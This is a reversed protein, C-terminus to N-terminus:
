RTTGIREGPNGGAMGFGGPEHPDAPELWHTLDRGLMESLEEVDPRYVDVLEARVEPKLYDWMDDPDPNIDRGVYSSQFDSDVQLFGFFARLFDTESACLDDYIMVFVQDPDFRACIEKLHRAYFGPDIWDPRNEWQEFFDFM